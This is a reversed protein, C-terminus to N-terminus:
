PKRLRFFQVGSGVNITGGYQNGILVPAPTVVTWPAGPGLTVSSELTFGGPYAPWWLSLQHNVVPGLAFGPAPATTQLLNGAPDYAYSTSKGGGYDAAVLRGAPDYTYAITSARAAPSWLLLLAACFVRCLCTRPPKM